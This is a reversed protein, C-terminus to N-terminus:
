PRHCSWSRLERRDLRGRGTGVRSRVVDGSPGLRRRRHASHPRRHTVDGVGPSRDYVAATSIHVLRRVGADRAARAIVATGKVGIRYQNERDTGMPHVTTVVASAGEVVVAALDPDFFDGVREDVGDLAPATGPRRVVARVSAGRRLLAACTRSGVFGNAGVVVVPPASAVSPESM